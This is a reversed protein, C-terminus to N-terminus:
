EKRLVFEQKSYDWIHNDPINEDRETKFEVDGAEAVFSPEQVVVKGFLKLWKLPSWVSKVDNIIKKMSTHPIVTTKTEHWLYRFACVKHLLIYEFYIERVFNGSSDKQEEEGPAPAKIAPYNIPAGCSYCFGYNDEEDKGVILKKAEKYEAAFDREDAKTSAKDM